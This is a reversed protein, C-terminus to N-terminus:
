NNWRSRVRDTTPIATGNQRIEIGIEILTGSSGDNTPLNYLSAALPNDQTTLFLDVAEGPALTYTAIDAGGQSTSMSSVSTSRSWGTFSMSLQSKQITIYTQSNPNTVTVLATSTIVESTDASYPKSFYATAQPQEFMTPGTGLSGRRSSVFGITRTHISFNFSTTKLVNVYTGLPLNFKPIGDPNNTLSFFPIFNWSTGNAAAQMITRLDGIQSFYILAPNGVSVAGMTRSSFLTFQRGGIFIFMGIYFNAFDLGAGGSLETPLIEMGAMDGQGQGSGQGYKFNPLAYLNDITTTGTNWIVDSIYCFPAANTNYNRFDSDRFPESVGGRPKLYTYGTPVTTPTLNEPLKSDGVNLGFNSAKMLADTMTAASSRVPKWRSWMNINDSTCGFSLNKYISGAACVAKLVGIDTNPLKM